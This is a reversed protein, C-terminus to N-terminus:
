SEGLVWSTITEDGRPSVPTSTFVARCGDLVRVSPVHDLPIRQSGCLRGDVVDIVAVEHVARRAWFPGVDLRRGVVVATATVDHLWPWDALLLESGDGRELSWGAGEGVRLIGASTPTAPPDGVPVPSAEGGDADVFRIEAAGVWVFRGDQDIVYASNSGRGDTCDGPLVASVGGDHDFISLECRDTDPAALVAIAEDRVVVEYAEGGGAIVTQEGTAPDLRVVEMGTAAPVVAVFVPPLGLRASAGPYTLLPGDGFSMAAIDGEFGTEWRVTGDRAVAVVDCRWNACYSSTVTGDDDIARPTGDRRSWLEGGDRDYLAVDAARSWVVTLGDPGPALLRREAVLTGVVELTSTDRWVVEDEDATVLRDGVVLSSRDVVVASTDLRRSATGSDKAGRASRTGVLGVVVAAVVLVVAAVAFTRTRVRKM